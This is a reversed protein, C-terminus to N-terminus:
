QVIPLVKGTMAPGFGRSMPSRSPDARVSAIRNTLRADSSRDAAVAASDVDVVFPRLVIHHVDDDVALSHFSPEAHVLTTRSNAASKVAATLGTM